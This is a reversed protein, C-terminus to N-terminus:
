YWLYTSWRLYYGCSHFSFSSTLSSKTVLNGSHAALRAPVCPLWVGWWQQPSPTLGLGTFAIENQLSASINLLRGTHNWMLISKCPSATPPLALFIGWSWRYGYVRPVGSHGCYLQCRQKHTTISVLLCFLRILTEVKWQCHFVECAFVQGLHFIHSFTRCNAKRGSRM